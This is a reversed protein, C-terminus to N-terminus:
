IMTQHEIFIVKYIKFSFSTFIIITHYFTAKHHQRICSLSTLSEGLFIAFSNYKVYIGNVRNRPSETVTAIQCRLLQSLTSFLTELEKEVCIKM